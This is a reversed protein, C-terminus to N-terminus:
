RRALDAVASWLEDFGARLVQYHGSDCGAAPSFAFGNGSTTVIELTDIPGDHERHKGASVEVADLLRRVLAMEEDSLPRREEADQTHGGYGGGADPGPAELEVCTAHVLTARAFDVTFSQADACTGGTKGCVDKGITMTDVDAGDIHGIKVPDDGRQSSTSRALEPAEDHEVAEPPSATVPLGADGPEADCALALLPALALLCAAARAGM